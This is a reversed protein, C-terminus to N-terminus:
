FGPEFLHDPLNQNVKFSTGRLDFYLGVLMGGGFEIASRGYTAVPIDLGNMKKYDISIKGKLNGGIMLDMRRLLYESTDVYFIVKKVNKLVGPKPLGEIVAEGTTEKLYKLNFNYTMLRPNFGPTFDPAHILTVYFRKGDKDIKRIRNGRVWYRDTGLTAMLRDPAKYYLHGHQTYLGGCGLIQLSTDLKFDAEADKVRLFKDAVRNVLEEPTLALTPSLLALLILTIFFARM